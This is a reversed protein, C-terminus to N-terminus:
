NDKQHITVLLRKVNQVTDKYWPDRAQILTDDEFFDFANIAMVGAEKNELKPKAIEM